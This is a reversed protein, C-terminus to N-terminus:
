SGRIEKSVIKPTTYISRFLVSLANLTVLKTVISASKYSYFFFFLLRCTSFDSLVAATPCREEANTQM